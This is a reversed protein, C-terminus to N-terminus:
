YKRLKWYIAKVAYPTREVVDYVDYVLRGVAALYLCDALLYLL